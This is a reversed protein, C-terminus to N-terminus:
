SLTSFHNWWRLISMWRKRNRKQKRNKRKKRCCIRVQRTLYAYLVPICIIPMLCWRISHLLCFASGFSCSNMYTEAALAFYSLGLTQGTRSAFAFSIGSLICIKIVKIAMRHLFHFREFIFYEMQRTEAPHHLRCFLLFLFYKLHRLRIFHEMSFFILM